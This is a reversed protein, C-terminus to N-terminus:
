SACTTARPSRTWRRRTGHVIVDITQSGATLHDALDASLRAKHAALPLAGGGALLVALAVLLSRHAGSPVTSRM